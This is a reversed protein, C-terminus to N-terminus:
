SRGECEARAAALMQVTESASASTNYVVKGCTLMMEASDNNHGDKVYCVAYADIFKGDIAVFGGV